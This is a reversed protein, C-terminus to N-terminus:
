VHQLQYGVKLRQHMMCIITSENPVTHLPSILQKGNIYVM